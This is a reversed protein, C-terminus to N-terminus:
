GRRKQVAGAFGDLIELTTDWSVCGDTISQGYTLKSGPALSQNGEVLNSEVMVAAIARSGGAIQNCLDEAVESQKRFDKRSNGHSCDVMLYPPLDASEVQDTVAKIDAADYNPGKSSGRLIVHCTDNGTTSVIASDGSKTVSM